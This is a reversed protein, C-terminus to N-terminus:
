LTVEMLTSLSAAKPSKDCFILICSTMSRCGRIWLVFIEILM